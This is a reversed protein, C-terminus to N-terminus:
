GRATWPRPEQERSDRRRAASRYPEWTTGNSDTSPVWFDRGDHSIRPPNLLNTPEHMRRGGM